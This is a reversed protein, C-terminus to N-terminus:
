HASSHKFIRAGITHVHIAQLELAHFVPDELVIRYGRVTPGDDEAAAAALKEYHPAVFDVASEYVPELAKQLEEVSFDGAPDFNDGMEIDNLLNFLNAARPNACVNKNPVSRFSRQPTCRVTAAGVGDHEVLLFPADTDTDPLAPELGVDDLQQRHLKPEVLVFDEDDSDVPRDAPPENRISKSSTLPM